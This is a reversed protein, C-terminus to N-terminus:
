LNKFRGQHESLVFFLHGLWLVKKVKEQKLNIDMKNLNSKRM